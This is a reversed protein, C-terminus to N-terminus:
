RQGVALAAVEAETFGLEHLVARTHQDPRPAPAPDQVVEGHWLVPMGMQQTPGLLPDAVDVVMRTHLVQPHHVFEGRSMVPACPIDHHGLLQLWHARPRKLFTEQLVETLAGHHEPPIGWPADLFRPDATLEERGLAICLKNWFVSNGCALFFWTGDSCRYLRYVPNRGQSGGGGGGLPRVRPGLVFTGTQVAMAGNLLPVEVKQGQGTAERALLAATVALCGTFAAGYSPLPLYVFVPPGGDGGQDGYIGSHAAVVVDDAPVDALPGGEGFPPVACYVLRPNIAALSSFDTQLKRAASPLLDEVWVDARAALRHVVEAGLGTTVDVDVSEKGRDLLARHQPQFLGQVRTPLHPPELKVVRAGMTALLMCIYPAAMQQSLEVVLVGALVGPM